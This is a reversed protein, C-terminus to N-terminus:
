YEAVYRKLTELNLIADGMTNNFYVFVTKGLSLWEKIYESYEYLVDDGYSGRYSGDPGHFRLYIFDLESDSLPTHAPPKDHIVLGMQYNNLLDYVDQHYLSPHRFEIATKWSFGADNERVQRLLQELQRFNGMKVSPPFQVLLCGKKDGAQAITEMFLRVADPSFVLGKQHTIEKWLKFTFKFGEPVEQAWKRVTTAMPIKYFSSNVEISNMLSGYYCLRSKDKFAEPYHLKNPVPLLLGSTGSFYNDIATVSM